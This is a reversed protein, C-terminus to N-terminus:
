KVGIRNMWVIKSDNCNMLEISADTQPSLSITSLGFFYFFSYISQEDSNSLKSIQLLFSKEGDEANMSHFPEIAFIM